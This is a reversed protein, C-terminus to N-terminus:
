HLTTTQCIYVFCVDEAWRLGSHVGKHSKRQLFRQSSDSSRQDMPLSPLTHTHTESGNLWLLHIATHLTQVFM